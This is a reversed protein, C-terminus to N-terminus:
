LAMALHTADDAEAPDVEVDFELELKVSFGQKQRFIYYGGQKLQPAIAQWDKRTIVAGPCGSVRLLIENDWSFKRRIECVGKDLLAQELALMFPKIRKVWDQEKRRIRMAKLTSVHPLMYCASETNSLTPAKEDTLVQKVIETVSQAFAM